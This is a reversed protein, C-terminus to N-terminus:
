HSTWSTGNCFVPVVVTSGGTLTVNYAPATADTVYAMGGKLTANCTPLTGVTFAPLGVPQTALIGMQGSLGTVTLATGATPASITVNGNAGVNERTSGNTSIAVAGSTGSAQLQLTATSGPATIFNFGNRTFTIQDGTQDLNIQGNAGVYSFGNGAAAANITVAPGATPSFTWNGTMVPSIAQSLAPASGADMVNGTAGTVPTLGVQSSPAAFTTVCALSDTVGAVSCAKSAAGTFHFIGSSWVGNSTVNGGGVYNFNSTGTENVAFGAGALGLWMGNIFSVANTNNLTVGNKGAQVDDIYVGSFIIDSSNNFVVTDAGSSNSLENHTFILFNNIGSGLVINGSTNYINSNEVRIAGAGTDLLLGHVLQFNGNVILDNVWTDSALSGFEIGSSGILNTYIQVHNLRVDHTKTSNTGNVLVAAFGTPTNNFLLDDLNLSGEGTTDLTSASGNTGLFQLDRVVQLSFDMAAHSWSLVSVGGGKQKLVSSNGDGYITLGSTHPVVASVVYVGSPVYVVPNCNLALQMAASMDTTGPTTNIGYRLITGPPYVLSVAVAGCAIEAPTLPFIVGSASSVTCKKTAGAQTCPFLEAGTLPTSAPPLQSINFQAYVPLALTLLLAALLKKM